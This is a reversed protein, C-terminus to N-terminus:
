GLDKCDDPWYLNCFPRDCAFCFQDYEPREPFPKHCNTCIIHKTKKGNQNCKFMDPYKEACNKCKDALVLRGKQGGLVKKPDFFNSQVGGMQFKPQGKRLLKKDYDSESSDESNISSSSDSDDIFSSEYSSDDEDEEEDYNYDYGIFVSL